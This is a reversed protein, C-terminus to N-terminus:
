QQLSDICKLRDEPRAWVVRAGSYRIKSNEIIDKPHKLLKHVADMWIYVDMFELKSQLDNNRAYSFLQTYVLLTDWSETQKLYNKLPQFYKSIGPNSRNIEKYLLLAENYLGSRELAKAQLFKNELDHDKKKNISIARKQIQNLVDPVNQNQTLIFSAFLIFIFFKNM